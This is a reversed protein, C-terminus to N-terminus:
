RAYLSPHLRFRSLRSRRLLPACRRGLAPGRRENAHIRYSKKWQKRSLYAKIDAVVKKDKAPGDPMNKYSIEYHSM